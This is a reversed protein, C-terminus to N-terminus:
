RSPTKRAVYEELIKRSSGSGDPHSIGYFTDLIRRVEVAASENTSCEIVTQNGDFAASYIIRITGPTMPAVARKKIKM